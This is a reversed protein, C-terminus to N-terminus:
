RGGTLPLLEGTMYAAEGSRWWVIAEACKVPTGIRAMPVMAIVKQLRDAAIAVAHIGTDILGDLRQAEPRHILMSFMM